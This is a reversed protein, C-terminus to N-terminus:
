SLGELIENLHMGFEAVDCFSNYLPAPAMRIVSPHRWDVVIGRETLAEFVARGKEGLDISLQAGRRSKDSPTLVKVAPFRKRIDTLIEEAFGTLADRKESIREMGADMFIDLSAKHSAMNMVPANSLQWSDAGYSPEFWQPMQFRTKEDNGWWGAFRVLDPDSGHKEHVFAGGVSGPGSNLYKYTCWVAYDADWDHLKLEVNGVAHALDFGVIAGVKHGERAILEMNFFQGTYYHVGSFHIVALSDGHEAIISRLQEDSIEHSGEPPMVEILCEKPDYGHHKIQSEVAYRDSPFEYGVIMIKNRTPTPRYFSALMLHINVTLANMAVVEHPLAGVIKSLPEKFQQHYSFWPRRSTMHGEVGLNRWDEMEENVIKQASRPQLGLSNGTFYLLPKGDKVPFHFEQRFSALEDQADLEEAKDKYSM